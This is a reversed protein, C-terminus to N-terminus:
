DDDCKQDSDPMSSMILQMTEEDGLQILYGREAAQEYTEAYNWPGCCGSQWRQGQNINEMKRGLMEMKEGFTEFAHEWMRDLRSLRIDDDTDFECDAGSSVVDFGPEKDILKFKYPSGWPDTLAAVGLELSDLDDPMEDHRQAHDQVAIAINVMDTTTEVVEPQTLMFAGVMGAGAGIMGVLALAAVALVIVLWFAAGLLGLIVAFTAFGRPARGIAVLGLVLGLLSVIGTPIFLGILAVFFAFVGLGNGQRPQPMAIPVAMVQGPMFPQPQQQSM